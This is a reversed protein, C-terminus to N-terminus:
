KGSSPRSPSEKAGCSRPLGAEGAVTVLDTVITDYVEDFTQATAYVHDYSATDVFPEASPHRHTRLRLTSARELRDRAGVTTLEAGAPGLGVVVVRPATTETM